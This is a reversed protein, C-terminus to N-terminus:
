MSQNVHLLDLTGYQRINLVKVADPGFVPSILSRYDAVATQPIFVQITGAFGGGHIRFAGEGLTQVFQETLAQALSVGQEQPAKCTFSNQLWKASSDGSEQILQLFRYFDNNELAQVQKLVRENEKLFHYARLLSRDGVRERLAGMRQMVMELTLERCVRYGLAAAVLKMEMPVAAYDDTLDAHSGGTDVVLLRYNQAAFDFQVPQIMPAQSDAFDIQVIGGVACAVQDMLGCPKGFYQNEAWQGIMALSEPSIEHENYFANLITGILVEIAASSSLGSGQLVDSTVYASFGGTHLGRKRFGAVIGRILAFTTGKENEQVSLDDLSVRFPQDFGDSHLIIEPRDLKGAVAVADLNISGALVRGANHDTHNGGIETRGPTNFVSVDEDAFLKVYTDIAKQYRTKQKNIVSSDRSYLESFLSDFTEKELFGNWQSQSPM